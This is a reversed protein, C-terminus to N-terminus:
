EVTSPQQVGKGGDCAALLCARGLLIRHRAQDLQPKFKAGSNSLTYLYISSEFTQKLFWLSSITKAFAFHICSDDRLFKRMAAKWQENAARPGIVIGLYKASLVFKFNSWAPVAKCFVSQVHALRDPHHVLALRRYARQLSEQTSDVPVGLQEYLSPNVVESKSNEM